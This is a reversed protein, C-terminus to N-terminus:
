VSVEIFWDRIAEKLKELAIKTTAECYIRLLPETGSPRILVWHGGALLLKIGDM